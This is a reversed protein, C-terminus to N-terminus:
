DNLYQYIVGAMESMLSSKELFLKAEEIRLKELKAEFYGANASGMSMWSKKLMEGGINMDFFHHVLPYRSEMDPKLEDQVIEKQKKLILRKNEKNSEGKVRTRKRSKKSNTLVTKENNGWLKESFDFVIADHPTSFSLPAGIKKAKKLNRFYKEELGRLKETVQIKTFEKHLKDKVFIYFETKNKERHESQFEILGCLLTIVDEETFIQGLFTPPKKENSELPRIIYNNQKMSEFNLDKESGEASTEIKTQTNNKANEEEKQQPPETEQPVVKPSKVQDEEVLNEEEKEVTTTAIEEEVNEEVPFVTSKPLNISKKKRKRDSKPANPAEEREKDSVEVEDQTVEEEEASSTPFVIKKSEMDM